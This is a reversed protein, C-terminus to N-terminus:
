FSNIVPKAKEIVESATTQDFNNNNFLHLIEELEKLAKQNNTNRFEEKL